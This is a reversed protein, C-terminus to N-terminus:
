RFPGLPLLVHLTRGFVFYLVATVGLATGIVPVWHRLGLLWIVAALLVPTALLFGAFPMVAAYVLLLAIVAAFVGVRMEPPRSPDSRGALARLILVLSLAALAFALMRPFFAPGLRDSAFGRIISFSQQYYVLAFGLLGLGIFFDARRM